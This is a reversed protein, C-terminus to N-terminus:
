ETDNVNGFGFNSSRDARLQRLGTSSVNRDLNQRTRPMCMRSLSAMRSTVHAQCRPGPKGPQPGHSSYHCAGSVRWEQANVRHRRRSLHVNLSRALHVDVRREGVAQSLAEYRGGHRETRPKDIRGAHANAHQM